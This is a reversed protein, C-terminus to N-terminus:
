KIDFFRKLDDLNDFNVYNSKRTQKIANFASLDGSNSSVIRSLTCDLFEEAYSKLVPMTGCHETILNTKDDFKFIELWFANVADRNDHLAAFFNIM